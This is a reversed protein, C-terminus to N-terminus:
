ERDPVRTPKRGAIAVFAAGLTTRRGLWPDIPALMSACPECPPYYIAGRMDTVILGAGMMLETLEGATRFEAARWSASGFWGKIRRKAAWLNWRGLEGIVLCGGPKLVRVMEMVAREADHLFCLVTVAVVADFAAEPFPLARADGEILTMQLAETNARKRAAALMHLDADVGTVFAGRRALAAALVGDGCGVDLVCQREPPGMLELILDEELADTIRGLRSARWHRYAEPLEALAEVSPQTMVTM